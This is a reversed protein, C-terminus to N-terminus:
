RMLMMVVVWRKGGGSVVVVNDVGDVGGCLVSIMDIKPQCVCEHLHATEAAGVM